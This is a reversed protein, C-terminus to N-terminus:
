VSRYKKLLDEIRQDPVLDTVQLLRISKFDPHESNIVYNSSDPLVASPVKFVPYAGEDYWKNGVPQCLTYDTIDRWGPLLDDVPIVQVKIHFPIELIMIKFDDNFGIGQRRIMNELFAIAISEACYIVKRGSGNWRGSFGPAFLGTSYKKLAIRYALM